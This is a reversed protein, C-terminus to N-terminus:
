QPMASFLNSRCPQHSVFVFFNFVTFLVTVMAGRFLPEDKFKRMELWKPPMDEEKKKIKNENELWKTKEKSLKNKISDAKKIKEERGKKCVGNM